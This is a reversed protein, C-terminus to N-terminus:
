KVFLPANYFINDPIKDDGMIQQPALSETLDNQYPAFSKYNNSSKDAYKVMLEALEDSFSQSTQMAMLSTNILTEEDDYPSIAFGNKNLIDVLRLRDYSVVKVFLGRVLDVVQNEM